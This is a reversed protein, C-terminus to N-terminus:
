GVETMVLILEAKPVDQGREKEAWTAFRHWAHRARRYSRTKRIQSMTYPRRMPALCYAERGHIPIAVFFGIADGTTDSTPVFRREARIYRDGDEFRQAYRERADLTVEKWDDILEFLRTDGVRIGFMLGGVEQGM